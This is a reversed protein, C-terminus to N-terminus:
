GWLSRQAAFTMAKAFLELMRPSGRAFGADLLSSKLADSQFESM